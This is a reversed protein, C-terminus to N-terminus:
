THTIIDRWEFQFLSAIKIKRNIANWMPRRDNPGGFVVYRALNFFLKSKQIINTSCMHVDVNPSVSFHPWTQMEGPYCACLYWNVGCEYMYIRFLSVWLTTCVTQPSLFVKMPGNRAFEDHRLRKAPWRGQVPRSYFIYVSLACRVRYHM